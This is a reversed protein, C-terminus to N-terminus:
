WRTGSRGSGDRVPAILTLVFRLPWLWWSGSRGSWSQGRGSAHARLEHGSARSCQGPVTVTAAGPSLTEGSGVAHIAAVTRPCPHGSVPGGAGSTPRGAGSARCRSRRWRRRLPGQGGPLKRSSQIVQGPSVRYGLCFV